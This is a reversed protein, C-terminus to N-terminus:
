KAVIGHTRLPIGLVKLSNPVVGSIAEPYPIYYKNFLPKDSKSYYYITDHNRIYKEAASKYGSVWGIRWIIETQYIFFQDLLLRLREKENYDIHVYISGDESLLPHAISLRDNMMTLWSSHQYRDKYIFEDRGTNFPPDIYICKVKGRYKELLLNLAQFNESKILVGDLAEDLDDFHALLRWKFDESFHRTDVVLTPHQRLFEKTPQPNVAYLERWEALQAENQLV